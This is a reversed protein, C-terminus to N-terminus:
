PEVSYIITETGLDEEPGGLILRGEDQLPHEQRHIFVRGGKDSHVGIGNSSHDCVVFWGNRYEISAHRRSVKGVFVATRKDIVLDNSDDRGLLIIPRRADAKLTKDRYRLILVPGTAEERQGKRAAASLLSKSTLTLESIDAQWLVDFIQIEEKRGRIKVTNLPRTRERLEIPLQEVSQRSTIIEGAKALEVMRAAVNVADGFVDNRDDRIVDGHHFGIRISISYRLSTEDTTMCEQMGCAAQFARDPTSFSCMVEDGITKIVVGEHEVAVQALASLIRSVIEQARLNGYMEFLQTSKSIDAFLVARFLSKNAM